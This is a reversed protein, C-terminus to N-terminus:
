AFLSAGGGGGYYGGGGGGGCAGNTGGQLRSGAKGSPGFFAYSGGAGGKTDTAGTAASKAYLSSGDNPLSGDQGRFM